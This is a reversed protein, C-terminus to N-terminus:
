DALAADGILMRQLRERYEATLPASAGDQSHVIVTECVGICTGDLLAQGMEFSSRGIRLIGTGVEAAGPWFGEGLYRITLQAVVTRLRNEGAFVDVYFRARADEYYHGIRIANLHGYPDLDSVRTTVALRHPYAALTARVPDIKPM